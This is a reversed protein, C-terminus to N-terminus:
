DLLYSDIATVTQASDEFPDPITFISYFMYQNKLADGYEVIFHRYVENGTKMSDIIQQKLIVDSGCNLSKNPLVIVNEWRRQFKSSAPVPISDRTSLEHYYTLGFVPYDSINKVFYPLGRREGGEETQVIEFGAYQCASDLCLQLIPMQGVRNSEKLTNLTGQMVGLQSFYAWAIVATALGSLVTASIAVRSGWIGRSNAAGQNM